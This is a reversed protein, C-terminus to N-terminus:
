GEFWWRECCKLGDLSWNGALNEYKIKDSAAHMDSPFIFIVSGGEDRVIRQMEVYMERRKTKDLEARAEVLLKNFREHNWHAENWPAGTAYTTSFMMDETPRGAWRSSAWPKKMWVEKWYGDVPAKSIEIGLDIVEFGGGEMIMSVINKGIDHLDGKVTALMMKGQSQSPGDQLLPKLVDLGAKMTIASSLM